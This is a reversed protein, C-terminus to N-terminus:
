HLYSRTLELRQQIGAQEAELQGVKARQQEVEIPSVINETALAQSDALFQQEAAVADSFKRMDMHLEGLEMPITANLLSDLDSQALAFEEELKLIERELDSADFRAIVDGSRVISGEPALRTVTAFGKFQSVITVERRAEIRGRHVTQEVVSGRRIESTHDQPAAPKNASCMSFTLAVAAAAAPLALRFIKQM